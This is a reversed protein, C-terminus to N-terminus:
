KSTVISLYDLVRRNFTVTMKQLPTNRKQKREIPPIEIKEYRDSRFDVDYECM